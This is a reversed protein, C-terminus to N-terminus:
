AGDDELPADQPVIKTDTALLRDAAKVSDAIVDIVPGRPPAISGSHNVDMRDRYTEPKRGKLMFMLLLDSKERIHGVVKGGYFVPRNTGFMARKTAEDELAQTSLDLALEWGTKFDPDERRWAYAQTRSIRVSKCAMTVNGGTEILVHLFTRKRKELPIPNRTNPMRM